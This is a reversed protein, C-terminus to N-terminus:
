GTKQKDDEGRVPEDIKKILTITRDMVYDARIFDDKGFAEFLPHISYPLDIKKKM